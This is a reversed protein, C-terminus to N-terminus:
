FRGFRPIQAAGCGCRRGHHCRWHLQDAFESLKVDVRAMRSLEAIATNLADLAGGECTLAEAADNACCALSEAHEVRPLREELEELEGPKPDVDSIRELAFRAEELRSGQTRSAQEVRELERAAENAARLRRRSVRRTGRCRGRRGLCRGDWCPFSPRAAAPARASRVPRDPPERARVTRARECAIRGCARPFPRRLGPSAPYRLGGRRSRGSFLRGEVLAGDSGERVTASDAREGMLLKLASLLATKGAGTEGTLVTLGPGPVLDACKILAINEVHIEDIM